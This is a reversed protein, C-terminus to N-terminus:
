TSLKMESSEKLRKSKQHLSKNRKISKEKRKTNWRLKIEIITKEKFTNKNSQKAKECDDTIRNMTIETRRRQVDNSHDIKNISEKQETM